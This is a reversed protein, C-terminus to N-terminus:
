LIRGFLHLLRPVRTKFAMFVTFINHVNPYAPYNSTSVAGVGNIRLNLGFLHPLHPLRTKFAMFETLINHVSPYAPYNRTSGAGVGNIRLIRCFTPPLGPANQVRHFPHFVTSLPTPSATAPLDLM